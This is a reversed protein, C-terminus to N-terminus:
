RGGRELSRRPRKRGKEAQEWQKGAEVAEAVQEPGFVRKLPYLASFGAPGTSVPGAPLVMEEQQKSVGM